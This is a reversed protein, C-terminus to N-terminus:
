CAALAALRNLGAQKLHRAVTSVALGLTQAIQRYTKRAQRLKILQEVTEPPTVHPSAHPRSSRDILGFEKKAFGSSGNTPLRVSV